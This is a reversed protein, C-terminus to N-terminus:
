LVVSWTDGADGLIWVGVGQPLPGQPKISSHTTRLLVEFGPSCGAAGLGPSFGSCSRVIRLLLQLGALGSWREGGWVAAPGGLAEEPLSREELGQGLKLVIELFLGARM